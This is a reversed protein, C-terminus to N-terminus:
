FKYTSRVYMLKGCFKKCKQFSIKYRPIYLLLWHYCTLYATPCNM